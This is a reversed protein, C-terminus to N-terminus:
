LPVEKLNSEEIWRGYYLILVKQELTLDPFLANIVGADTLLGQENVADILGKEFEKRLKNAEEFSLGLKGESTEDWKKKIKEWAEKAKEEKSKLLGM